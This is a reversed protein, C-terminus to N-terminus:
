TSDRKRCVYLLSGDLDCVFKNRRMQVSIYVYHVRHAAWKLKTWILHSSILHIFSHIASHFPKIFYTLLYTLLHLFFLMKDATSPDFM